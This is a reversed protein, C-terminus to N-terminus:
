EQNKPVADEIIFRHVDISSDVKGSLEVKQKAEPSQDFTAGVLKSAREVLAMKAQAIELEEATADEKNMIRVAENFIKALRNERAACMACDNLIAARIAKMTGGKRGAAVAADSTFKYRIEPNMAGKLPAPSSASSCAEKRSDKKEPKKAVKVPSKKAKKARKQLIEVAQATKDTSKAM